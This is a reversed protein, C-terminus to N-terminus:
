YNDIKSNPIEFFQFKVGLEQKCLIFFAKRSHVESLSKEEFFAIIGRIKDFYDEIGMSKPIQFKLFQFKM